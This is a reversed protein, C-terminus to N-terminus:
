TLRLTMSGANTGQPDVLIRYADTAPLVLNFTRGNVLVLTPSLVNSGDPAVVSVLSSSITVGTLQLTISQGASGSFAVSANQGPVTTTVTVAPGGPAASASLDPPVDYLTLTMSGTATTQPDVLFTYSGAVPLTRVDVFAGSTGVYVTSGLATGDPKLLTVTASSISVGSLKLSVRRGASGSFTASANQGPVATTVTVAAGGPVISASVDPPVEYLTLTISGTSASQPDVVLTYTGDAPLTRVDMFGGSTGAYVTSGLATGDPKLLTVTASSMSVGSLKLSVRRGASGSFTASANQGPVATAVTVAAGGPVISASVDPPVEYLTLTVSGTAASQPDVVLTYMGDVPLTRVDLFGGSTGVSANSGLASGDPKLLRVTASSMSVGSLKLSVRQGASGSFTVSANQGPVTTAVTVAAGGPVISASLDPPVDYLSLTMSGTAAGQPDVLLTYTGTVPLTRVDMFGGANGVLTSAGLGAGDPKLLRVWAL